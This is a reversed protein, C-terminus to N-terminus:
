PHPLYAVAPVSQEPTARRRHEIGTARERGAATLRYLHRPPRGPSPEWRHELLGDESLRILAPYLTGAGIGLRKSLEYGFAWSEPDRALAVLLADIQSSAHRPRGV